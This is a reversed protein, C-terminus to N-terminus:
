SLQTERFIPLVKRPEDFLRIEGKHLWLIRDCHDLTSLRHAIILQTRDAFFERTARVLIEESQPDISSTAEDMVVVPADQLLCRAMCLLQKEGASLNRGREEVGSSLGSPQRALWDDLGVRALAQLLREDPLQGTLDLNERVTGRFLTPEQSILSMSRRFVGLDVANALGRGTEPACGEITIRGRSLPYLHFLAQVLSTKGSGTRGIVGIKEGPKIDFNLGKLVWPLTESYRFWLDDVKIAAASQNKVLREGELAREEDSTAFVPHDTVFKRTAPLKSGAELPRRLYENMREVGTMAEEFQALWEFFMQLSTGSLVVFTFAVGISGISVLGARALHYGATGTALLLFATLLNMQMSFKLVVASTKLRQDLYRDNLSSFRNFFTPQRAFVRITSAGQTTEAFHAISPSRSASLFRREARLRDRNLRYVGYNALGVLGIIPIYFPSAVSILVIMCILDFIISLFEALPGGFLRFVNGYDSSFRTVIRGVPNGDFFSIPLRSTRLTTEDYLTSVAVASLRSFRVRFFTTFCFGVITLAALFRLFDESELGQFAAPVPKCVTPAACFTDAWIGVVNANALLSMRGLLGILITFSISAIVPRYSLFLTEIVQKSYQGRFSAEEDLFSKPKSM